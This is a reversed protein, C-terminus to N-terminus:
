KTGKENIKNSYIKIKSLPREIILYSITAFVISTIFFVYFKFQAPMEAQKVYNLVLMHFLYLSFSIVGIFRLFKLELFYKILGKGYKASLLIIGWLVAYPFYFLSSHFNVKTGFIKEFYFPITILILAFAILGATNYLKPDIKNQFFNKFLLEYISIMTGILFIPFYKFTSVLPLQFVVEIAISTLILLMFVFMLKVPDWKLYKHCFWMILPSILYYKFEVPISWFISEGRLLAMHLPIDIIRDIVTKIGALNLLGHLILAIIFLPYIRLFRRLFYNKWYSKSSKNTMFALAIQRDLLYASLVFFLYVGVKGIAHFDITEHIFIKTNSSHSLLVLLVAIGRLGDLAKFHQTKNDNPFFLKNFKDKMMIEIVSM